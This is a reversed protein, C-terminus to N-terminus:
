VSQNISLDLAKVPDYEHQIYSNLDTVDEEDEVYGIWRRLWVLKPFLRLQAYILHLACLITVCLPAVFSADLLHNPLNSPGLQIIRYVLLSLPSLISFRLVINVPEKHLVPSAPSVAYIKMM